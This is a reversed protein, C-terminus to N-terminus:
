TDVKGIKGEISEIKGSLRGTKGGRADIKLSSYIRDADNSLIDYSKQVVALAEEMTETEIITGMATLRYSVGENRIMDIVKSVEDSVSSGKDTPFMSFELLISMM